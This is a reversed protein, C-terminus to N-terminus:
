PDDRVVNVHGNGPLCAIELAAFGGDSAFSVVTELDEDAFPQTLIGVHM